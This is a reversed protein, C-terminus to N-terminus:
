EIEFRYGRYVIDFVKGFSGVKVIGVIIIIIMGGLM